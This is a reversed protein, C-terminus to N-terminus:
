ERESEKEEDGSETSTHGIKMLLGQLIPILSYSRLQRLREKMTQTFHEEEMLLEQPTLSSLTRTQMQPEQLTETSFSVLHMSLKQLIPIFFSEAQTQPEQSTQTLFNGAQMLLEQLIINSFSRTQMQPEPLTESSSPGAQMRPEQLTQTSSHRAEIQPEHLTQTSPKAQMQPEQLTQLSSPGVQVQPEQPTLLSSYKAQMSRKRMSQTSSPRAQTCSKKLTEISYPKQKLHQKCHMKDCLECRYRPGESKHVTKVHKRLKIESKFNQTFGTCKDPQKETHLTKHVQEKQQQQDKLNQKKSTREHRYGHNCTESVHHKLEQHIETYRQLNKSNPFTEPCKVNKYREQTHTMQHLVYSSKKPFTMGCDDCQFGM